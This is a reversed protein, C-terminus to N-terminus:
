EFVLPIWDEYYHFDAKSLPACSTLEPGAPLYVSYDYRSLHFIWVDGRKPTKGKLTPLSAFPIAVEMCWYEDRDEWNNLTGKVSIGVQLNKCNWSNWRRFNGAAGRKMTLADYVTGLANIEFNYYPDKEPEPKFFIELVDEQCTASDRETTIGWVDEDYAKFGVYLHTTDYVIRAETKSIPEKLTVPILFRDIVRAKQWAAEDLIGDIKVPTEIFRCVASPKQASQEM